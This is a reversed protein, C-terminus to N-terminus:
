YIWAILQQGNKDNDYIQQLVEKRKQLEEETFSQHFLKQVEEKFQEASEAITCLQNIQAGESAAENVLCHRGNYLANLLKLKVGTKNFSPLINIQAKKILDQMENEDPNIVMCTHAHSQALTQLPLSPNKGAIVLPIKLSNFVENLLWDAAKENENVELNGHYLCFCGKVNTTNVEKWPLFVPLFYINKANFVAKYVEVDEMSVSFFVAKKVLRREYEKLLLSECRFYVKKFINIEHKALQHYYKYEVNHLRVFIKRGQLKNNQLFYTCHIGELLIPHDDQQLKKLLAHNSRSQVIYPIILSFGLFGKKRIYYNVSECYETLIKQEPRGSTFCHLHIKVGLSHLCKIKYFLDVVGGYDTPWPVDHTVIHLHKNM